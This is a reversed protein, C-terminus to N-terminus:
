DKRKLAFLVAIVRFWLIPLLQLVVPRLLFHGDFPDFTDISFNISFSRPCHYSSRMKIMSVSLFLKAMPPKGITATATSATTRGIRTELGHGANRVLAAFAASVVDDDIYGAL